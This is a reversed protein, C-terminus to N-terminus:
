RFDFRESRLNAEPVGNARMQEVILPMLANPGCFAVDVGAPNGKRCIAAFRELFAPDSAGGPVPVLEAGQERAMAQMVDVAPFDRGPTHFYFLTVKDFRGNAEDKLWAIFPSIGM